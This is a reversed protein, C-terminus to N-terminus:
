SFNAHDWWPVKSNLDIIQLLKIDDSNKNNNTNNYLKKNRKHVIEYFSSNNDISNNDSKNKKIKKLQEQYKHLTNYESVNTYNANHIKEDINHKKNQYNDSTNSLNMNPTGIFAEKSQMNTNQSPLSQQNPYLKPIQQRIKERTQAQINRNHANSLISQININNGGEIGKQIINNIKEKKEINRIIHDPVIAEDSFDTFYEIFDRYHLAINLVVLGQFWNQNYAMYLFLSLTFLVIFFKDRGSLVINNHYDDKQYYVM